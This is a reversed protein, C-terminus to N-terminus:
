DLIRAVVHEHSARWVQLLLDLELRREPASKSGLLSVEVENPAVQEAVAHVRERLFALLSPVLQPDSLQIRMAAPSAARRESVKLAEPETRWVEFPPSRRRPPGAPAWGM